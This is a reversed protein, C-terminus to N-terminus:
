NPRPPAIVIPFVTEVCRTKNEVIAPSFKWKEVASRVVDNIAMTEGLVALVAVDGNEEIRAEVRVTRTRANDLFRQLAPPIAPQNSSKVRLMAVEVDMRVCPQASCTAMQDMLDQGIAPDPLMLGADRRLRDMGATNRSRCALNWEQKSAAIAKRYEARIQELAADAAGEVNLTVLERYRAAAENLDRAEFNKRWELLKQDAALRLKAQLLSLYQVPLGNDPNLRLADHFHKAATAFEDRTFAESGDHFSQEAATRLLEVVCGCRRDEDTATSLQQAAAEVEGTALHSSISDCIMHCRNDKQAAKVEDFLSVVKPPYKEVDISCKPDLACMEAFHSRASKVDDLAFYGLALQLKLRVAQPLDDPRSQISKDLATLLDVSEKFKAEYYLEESHNLTAAIDEQRLRFESPGQAIVLWFILGYRLTVRRWCSWVQKKGTKDIESLWV